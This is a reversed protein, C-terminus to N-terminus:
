FCASPCSTLSMPTEVNTSMTQIKPFWSRLLIFAIKKKDSQAVSKGDKEENFM